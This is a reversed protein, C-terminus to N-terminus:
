SENGAAPVSKQEDVPLVRRDRVLPRVARIEFISRWPRRRVTSPPNGDPWDSIGSQCPTASTAKM